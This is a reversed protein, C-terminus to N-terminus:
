EYNVLVYTRYHGLVKTARKSIKRSFRTKTLSVLGFTEVSCRIPCPFRKVIRGMKLFELSTFHSVKIMM